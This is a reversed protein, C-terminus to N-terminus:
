KVYELLRDCFIYYRGQKARSIPGNKLNGYPSITLTM